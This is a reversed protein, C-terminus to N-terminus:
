CTSLVRQLGFQRLMKGFQSALMQPNRAQQLNALIRWTELGLVSM